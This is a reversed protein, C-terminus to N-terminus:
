ETKRDTQLHFVTLIKTKIGLMKDLERALNM